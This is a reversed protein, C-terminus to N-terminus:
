NVAPLVPEFITIRAGYSMLYFVPIGYEHIHAPVVAPCACLGVGMQRQCSILFINEMKIM